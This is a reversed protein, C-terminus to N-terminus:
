CMKVKKFTYIGYYGYGNKENSGQWVLTEPLNNVDVNSYLNGNYGVFDFRELKLDLEPVWSMIDMPHFHKSQNFVVRNRDSLSLGIYMTGGPKLMKYLNKFGIIHSYPSIEGGYRGMGLHHITSLCSISDTYELFEDVDKLIDQQIFKINPHIETQLPRVDLVEISRFAAVHAVFGDIRSGVTVHRQPNHLFIHNAVVLDQYFYGGRATGASTGCYQAMIPQIADVKGGAQLFSVLTSLFHPLYIVKILRRLDIGLANNIWQSVALLRLKINKKILL